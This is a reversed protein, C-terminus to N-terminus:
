RRSGEIGAIVCCAARASRFIALPRRGCTSSFARRSTATAHPAAWEPLSVAPSGAPDLRAGRARDEQFRLPLRSFAPAFGRPAGEDANKRVASRGSLRKFNRVEIQVKTDVPQHTELDIRRRAVFLCFGAVHDFWVRFFEM